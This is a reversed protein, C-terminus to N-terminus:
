ARRILLTNDYWEWKKDGSIRKLIGFPKKAAGKVNLHLFLLGKRTLNNMADQIFFLWDKAQWNGYFSSGISTILDYRQPLRMCQQKVIALDFNKKLGLAIIGQEYIKAKRSLSGSNKTSIDTITVRHGLQNLIFPWLGTGAGVDLIDKKGVKDLDLINTALFLKRKLQSDIKFFRYVSPDNCFSNGLIIFQKPIKSEIKVGDM